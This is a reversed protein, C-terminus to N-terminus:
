AKYRKIEMPQGYISETRLVEFHDPHFDKRLSLNM